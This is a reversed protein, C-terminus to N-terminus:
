RDPHQVVLSTSRPNGQESHFVIATSEPADGFVMPGGKKLPKGIVPLKPMAKASGGSVAVAPGGPIGEPVAVAYEDEVTLHTEKGNGDLAPGTVVPDHGPMAIILASRQRRPNPPDIGKYYDVNHDRAAVMFGTGEDFKVPEPYSLETLAGDDALAVSEGHGTYRLLNLVGEAQSQKWSSALLPSFLSPSTYASNGFSIQVTLITASNPQEDDVGVVHDHEDVLDGGLNTIEEARVNDRVLYFQDHDDSFGEVADLPLPIISNWSSGPAHESSAIAVDESDSWRGDTDRRVVFFELVVDDADTYSAFYAFDSQSDDEDAGQGAWLLTYEGDEPLRKAGDRIFGADDALSGHPTWSPLGYGINSPLAGDEAPDDPRLIQPIAIAAIVIVM